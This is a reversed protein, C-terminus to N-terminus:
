NLILDKLREQEQKIKSLSSNFFEFKLRDWEENDIDFIFYVKKGVREQGIVPNKSIVILFSSFWLDSTKNM